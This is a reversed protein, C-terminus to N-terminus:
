DKDWFGPYLEYPLMNQVAEYDAKTKLKLFMDALWDARDCGDKIHQSLYGLFRDYGKIEGKFYRLRWIYDDIGNQAIGLGGSYRDMYYYRYAYGDLNDTKGSLFSAYEPKRWRLEDALVFPEGWRLTVLDAPLVLLDGMEFPVPLHINYHFLNCPYEFSYLGGFHAVEGDPNLSVWTFEDSGKFRDRGIYTRGNKDLGTLGRRKMDTWAKEFTSYCGRDSSYFFVDEGPACFGAIWKEEWAIQDLLSDRLSDRADFGPRGSIPMDPYEEIIQRWAMHREGRSKHDSHAVIVAMELPNFRHGIKKCYNAIDKSVFYDYINM